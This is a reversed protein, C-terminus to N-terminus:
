IKRALILQDRKFDIMEQPIDSAKIVNQHAILMKVVVSDELRKYRERAQARKNKANKKAVLKGQKSNKYSNVKKKIKESNEKYYSAAKDKCHKKNKERWLKKEKKEKAIEAKSRSERMQKRKTKIYDKNDESWQKKRSAIVLKNKTKYIESKRIFDSKNKIYYAHRLATHCEKCEGRPKGTDSRISFASIHKKKGCKSCKQGGKSNNVIKVRCKKCSIYSFYSPDEKSGKYSAIPSLEGCCICKKM